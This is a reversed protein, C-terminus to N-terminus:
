PALPVYLHGPREGIGSGPHTPGVHQPAGEPPSVHQGAAVSVVAGVPSRAQQHQRWPQRPRASLTVPGQARSTAVPHEVNQFKEVPRGGITEAV